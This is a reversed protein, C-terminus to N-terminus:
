AACLSKPVPGFKERYLPRKALLCIAIEKAEAAIRGSTATATRFEKWVGKWLEVEANELSSAFSARKYSFLFLIRPKARRGGTNTAGPAAWVATYDWRASTEGLVGRCCLTTASRPSYAKLVPPFYLGLVSLQVGVLVALM